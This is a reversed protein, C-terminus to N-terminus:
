YYRDWEPFVETLRTGRHADRIRIIDLMKNMNKEDYEYSELLSVHQPLLKLKKRIDPPISTICFANDKSVVSSFSHVPFDMMHLQM